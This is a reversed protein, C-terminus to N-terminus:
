AAIATILASYSAKSFDLTGALSKPKTVIGLLQLASDVREMSAMMNALEQRILVVSATDETSLTTAM